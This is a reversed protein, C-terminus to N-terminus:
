PFKVEICNEVQRVGEIKGVVTQAIQKLYFSSVKGYMCLVGDEMHCDIQRLDLYPSTQLCSRVAAETKDAEGRLLANEALSIM